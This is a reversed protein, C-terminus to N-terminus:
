TVEISCLIGPANFGCSTPAPLDAGLFLSEGYPEGGFTLSFLRLLRMVGEVTAMARKIPPKALPEFTLM